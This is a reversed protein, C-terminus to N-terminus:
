LRNRYSELGDVAGAVLQQMEIVQEGLQAFAAVSHEVEPQTSDQLVMGLQGTTEESWQQVQALAARIQESIQQTSGIAAAIEDIGAMGHGGHTTTSSSQTTSSQAAGVPNPAPAHSTNRSQQKQSAARTRSSRTVENIAARVADGSLHHHRALEDAVARIERDHERVLADSDHRATVHVQPDTVFQALADMDMLAGKAADVQFYLDQGLGHEALWLRDSAWGAHLANALDTVPMEGTPSTPEFYVHGGRSGGVEYPVDENVVARGVTLADSREVLVAHAAEHRM